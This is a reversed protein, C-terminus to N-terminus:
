AQAKGFIINCGNEWIIDYRGQAWEVIQQHHSGIEVCIMQVGLQFAKLAHLIRLDMGEADLSLFDYPGPFQGVLTAVSTVPLYMERAQGIKRVRRAEDRSSVDFTGSAAANGPWYYFLGVEDEPGIATNVCQVPYGEVEDRLRLFVEPNPEVAVGSWGRDLLARTNSAAKGDFAGIELYRGRKDGFYEHIIREEDAASYM